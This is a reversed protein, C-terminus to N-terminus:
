QNRRHRIKVGDRLITIRDGILPFEQMRHSVYIIGIGEAKLRHIQAFLSDVERESLTATPEDFVMTMRPKFSLAKAIEVMQQEAVSLNKVYSKVNIYECNLSKLLEAAEKEM